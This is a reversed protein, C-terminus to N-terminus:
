GDSSVEPMNQLQTLMSQISFRVKEGVKVGILDRNEYWDNVLVLCFLKAQFNSNDFKRGTANTLYLDAANILTEIIADDDNGDMRIWNKAEELDIIM